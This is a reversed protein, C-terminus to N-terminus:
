HAVGADAVLQRCPTPALHPEDCAGLAQDRYGRGEAKQEGSAPSSATPWAGCGDSGECRRGRVKGFELGPDILDPAIEVHRAESNRNRLILLDDPGPAETKCVAFSRDRWGAVRRKM